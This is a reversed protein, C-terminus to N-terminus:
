RKQPNFGIMKQIQEESPDTLLRKFVNIQNASMNGDIIGGKISDREAKVRQIEDQLYESLWSYYEDICEKDVM